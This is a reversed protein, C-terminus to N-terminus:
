GVDFAAVGEDAGINEVPLKFEAGFLFLLQVRHIELGGKGGEERAKDRRAFHGFGRFEVIEDFSSENVAGPRGVGLVRCFDGPARARAAISEVRNDPVRRIHSRVVDFGLDFLIEPSVVVGERM